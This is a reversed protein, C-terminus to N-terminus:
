WDQLKQIREIFQRRNTDNCDSIADQYFSLTKDHEEKNKKITEMKDKVLSDEIERIQQDLESYTTNKVASKLQESCLVLEYSGSEDRRLTRGKIQIEETANMSFFTQIVYM